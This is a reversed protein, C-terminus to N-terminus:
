ASRRTSIPSSGFSAAGCSAKSAPRGPAASAYGIAFPIGLTVAVWVLYLRDITRLLTDDMLDRGYADGREMGKTSFMWRCPLARLRPDCRARRDWPRRASLAPRGAQGSLAHHKRHDTVWQILPGQMTMCGLIALTAKVPAGAEFGKHTFYRHFGITTGFACM